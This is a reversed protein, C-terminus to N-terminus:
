AYLGVQNYSYNQETILHEQQPENIFFFFIDNQHPSNYLIQYTCFM